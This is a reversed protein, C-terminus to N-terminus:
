LIATIVTKDISIKHVNDAEVNHKFILVTTQAYKMNKQQAFTKDKPM